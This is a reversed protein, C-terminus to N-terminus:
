IPESKLAADDVNLEKEPIVIGCRDALKRAAEPFSLNEIKMIFSIVNGGEGCGFCKYFQKDPNVSFSATDEGHFPCLGFYNRGKKQLPVYEEVIEVIDCRSMIEDLTEKPIRGAM